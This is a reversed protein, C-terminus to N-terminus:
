RSGKGEAQVPRVIADQPSATFLGRLRRLGGPQNEVKRDGAGDVYLNAGRLGGTPVAQM